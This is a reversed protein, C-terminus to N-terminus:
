EELSLLRLSSTPFFFVPSTNQRRDFILTHDNLWDVGNIRGSAPGTVRVALTSQLDVVWVDTPGLQMNNRRYDPQWTVYAVSRGDRSFVPSAKRTSDFTLQKANRGQVDSVWIQGNRVFALRTSDNSWRKKGCRSSCDGRFITDDVNEIEYSSRTQMDIILWTSDGDLQVYRGDPSWTTHPTWRNFGERIKIPMRRGDVALFFLSQRNGVLGYWKGDPSFAGGEGFGYDETGALRKSHPMFAGFQSRLDDKTWHVPRKSGYQYKEAGPEGFEVGVNGSLDSIAAFADRATGVRKSDSLWGVLFMDSVVRDDSGDARVVHTISILNSRGFGGSGGPRGWGTEEYAIWKGDPSVLPATGERSPFSSENGSTAKRLFPWRTRTEVESKVAQAVPKLESPARRLYDELLPTVTVTPFSLLRMLAARQVTPSSDNLNEKILDLTAADAHGAVATMIALREEESRGAFGGRLTTAITTDEQELLLPILGTATTGTAVGFAQKLMELAPPKPSRLWADLAKERVTPDPDILATSVADAAIPKDAFRTLYQQVAARVGPDPDKALIKVAEIEKANPGDSIESPKSMGIYVPMFAIGTPDRGTATLVELGAMRVAPATDNLARIAFARWDAYDRNHSNALKAAWQPRPGIADLDALYSNLQDIGDVAYVYALVAQERILPDQDSLADRLFPLAYGAMYYLTQAAYADDRLQEQFDTVTHQKEKDLTRAVFRLFDDFLPKAKARDTETEAAWVASMLSTPPVDFSLERSNAPLLRNTAADSSTLKYEVRVRGLREYTPFKDVLLLRLSAGAPLDVRGAPRDETELSEGDGDSWAGHSGTVYWADSILRLDQTNLSVPDHSNNRLVVRITIPDQFQIAKDKTELTFDLRSAAVGNGPSNGIPRPRDSLAAPPLLCLITLLGGALLRAPNSIKM